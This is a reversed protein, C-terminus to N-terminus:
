FDVPLPISALGDTAPASAHNAPAFISGIKGLINTSPQNQRPQAGQIAANLQDAVDGKNPDTMYGFLEAKDAQLVRQVLEAHGPLDSLTWSRADVYTDTFGLRQKPILGIKDPTRVVHLSLAAMGWGGLLVSLWVLRFFTRIM